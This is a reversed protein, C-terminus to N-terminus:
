PVPEAGGPYVVRPDRHGEFEIVSEDIDDRASEVRHDAVTRNAIAAEDRM